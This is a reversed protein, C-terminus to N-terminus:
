GPSYTLSDVRHSTNQPWENQINQQRLRSFYPFYYPSTYVNEMFIVYELISKHMFVEM